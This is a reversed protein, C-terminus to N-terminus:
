QIAAPETRKLPMVRGGQHLKGSTVRGDAGREFIVKADVVKLFYALDSEPFLEAKPQGTAQTWLTTGERWFRLQFGPVLEFTGACADFAEVQLPATKSGEDAAMLPQLPQEPGEEMHRHLGKVQDGELVFRLRLDTDKVAFTTPSTPILPVAAGAGVSTVLQGDVLRIERFGSQGRYRGVLRQLQTTPVPVPRPEVMPTGAGLALLRRSLYEDSTAPADTNNLIVAVTHKEPDAELYSVFGNIGGGHGVLRRGQSSRFALGYGYPHTKGDATRTPTTMRVLSEPKVVKGAHLAFTWTALDDVTSVLAGAAGPQTMSLYAAPRPGATYGQVLGPILETETGLRTHKMGLPDFFRAKLYREWPQGSVKHILQGLLFYGTNNYRHDHGPKFELPKDLVFTKLLKEPTFDTRFQQGFTPDNTYSPIGSTHNLLMEVTVEGWSPPTDTLYRSIPATLEVKGDEVLTLIAAATFQKTVSGIRFVMDPRVPTKLELSALGFGARYLAKGDRALLIAAGPAEAAFRTKLLAEAQAPVTPTAALAVPVSVLLSMWIPRM